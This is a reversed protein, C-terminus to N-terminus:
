VTVDDATGLEEPTPAGLRSLPTAGLCKALRKLEFKSMIRVVMM